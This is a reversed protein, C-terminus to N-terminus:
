ALFVGQDWVHVGTSPTAGAIASVVTDLTVRIVAQTSSAESSHGALCAVDKTPLGTAAAHGTLSTGVEDGCSSPASRVVTTFSAPIGAATLAAFGEVGQNYPVLGDNIDHIIWVGKLGRAALVGANLAYSREALCQPAAPSGCEAEIENVTDTAISGVAPAAASAEVYTEALMSVAEGAVFYDFLPSGDAKKETTQLALASIAGGMSFGLLLVKDLSPYATLTQKTGAVVAAAGKTAEWNGYELAIAVAGAAAFEDLHSAWSATTHGYGHAVVVLVTAAGPDSPLAIRGIARGRDDELISAGTAFPVAAVLVIAAVLAERLM